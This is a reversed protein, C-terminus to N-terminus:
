FIFITGMFLKCPTKGNTNITLFTSGFLVGIINSKINALNSFPQHVGTFDNRKYLFVIM